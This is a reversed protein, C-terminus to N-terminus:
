FARVARVYYTPNKVDSGQLGNDFSQIWVGSSDGETSSWYNASAFGGIRDRNEYLIDLEDITPLRWGDGLAACTKIADDWSMKGLDEKMVELNGVKFTSYNNNETTTGCGWCMVALTLLLLQQKM